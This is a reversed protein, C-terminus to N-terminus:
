EDKCRRKRTNNSKMHICNFANIAPKGYSHFQWVWFIVEELSLQTVAVLFHNVKRRKKLGKLVQLALFLRYGREREDRNSLFESLENFTKARWGFVKGVMVEHGQFSESLSISQGRKRVLYRFNQYTTHSETYPREVTVTTIM